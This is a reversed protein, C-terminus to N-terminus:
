GQWHSPVDWAPRKLEDRVDAQTLGMDELAANDLAALQRRQRWVASIKLLGALSLLAKGPAATSISIFAM